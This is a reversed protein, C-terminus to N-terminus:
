QLYINEKDSVNEAPINKFFEATDLDATPGYGMLFTGKENKNTEIVYLISMDSPNSMGEYRNEAVIFVDEPLYAIKTTNNILKGDQVRFSSVYGKEEYIRIYDKENKAFHHSKVKPHQSWAEKFAFEKSPMRERQATEQQQLEESLKDLDGGYYGVAVATTVHFGEPVDFVEQAKKWNVGAMHHLGIGLHQAQVTLNGMCLGLDHLAHFNEDGNGNNEKYATLMLLPANDAWSQNFESLCNYISSYAETGKEAYVIRWPQLNNSSASWRAAEFLKQLDETKIKETKFTRPSYRQKLPEIIEHDTGAVKDLKVQDQTNM